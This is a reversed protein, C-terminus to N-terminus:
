AARTMGYVSTDISSRMGFTPLQLAVSLATRGAQRGDGRARKLSRDLATLKEKAKTLGARLGQVEGLWGNMRAEVIRGNLNHIIEVLRARRRPSVQLM